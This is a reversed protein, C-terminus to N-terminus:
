KKDKQKKGKPFVVSSGQAHKPNAFRSPQQYQQFQAAYRDTQGSQPPQYSPQQPRKAQPQQPQAQQPQWVPEQPQAYPPEPQVSQPQWEAQQPEPQVEQPRWQDAAQQVDSTLAEVRTGCAPCFRQHPQLPNNCNPCNM